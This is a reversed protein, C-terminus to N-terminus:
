ALEFIAAVEVASDLPLSSAGVAFRAHRGADGFVEVMLDSAGNIVRPHDTFALPANVVGEIRVVRRVRDLDGGCANRAHCILNLGCIRAGKYAEDISIAEGVKGKHGLVGDWVPLQGSIFLLNGAVVYPVYNAAPSSPTPLDIGLEKLRSEIRGAM